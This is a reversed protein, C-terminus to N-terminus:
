ARRKRRILSLSGLGLLAITAPEPVVGTVTAEGGLRFGEVPYDGVSGFDINTLSIHGFGSTDVYAHIDYAIVGPEEDHENLIDFPLGSATGSGSKEDVPIYGLIDYWGIGVMQVDAYDMQWTYDYQPYGTDVNTTSDWSADGGYTELSFTWNAPNEAKATSALTAALVVSVCITILRKTKM